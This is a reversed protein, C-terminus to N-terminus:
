YKTNEQPYMHMKNQICIYVGYFLLSLLRWQELSFFWPNRNANANRGVQVCVCDYLSSSSLAIRWKSICDECLNVDVQKMRWVWKHECEHRKERNENYHKERDASSSDLLGIGSSYWCYKVPHAPANQHKVNM